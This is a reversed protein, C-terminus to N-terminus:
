NYKGSFKFEVDFDQSCDGCTITDGSKEVRGEWCKSGCHPCTILDRFDILINKDDFCVITTLGKGKFEINGYINKSVETIKTEVSALYKIINDKEESTPKFTIEM